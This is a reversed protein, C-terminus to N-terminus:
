ETAAKSFGPFHLNAVDGERDTGLIRRRDPWRTGWGSRMLVIAGAPIRGHAAEWAELDAVTLRYDPDRAAEAAVDVVVAPGVLASLPVQDATAGGEAFHIPADMHTGGHEPGRFRNAAYFYGAETRGHSGPELHFGKETPWYITSEDFTYTLDVLKAPDLAPEPARTCGPAAALLLLM